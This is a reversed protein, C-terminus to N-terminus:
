RPSRVFLIAGAERAFEDGNWGFWAGASFERYLLFHEPWSRRGIERPGRFAPHGDARCRIRGVSGASFASLRGNFPSKQDENPEVRNGLLGDSVAARWYAFREAEPVHDTSLVLRQM